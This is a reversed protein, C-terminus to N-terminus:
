GDPSLEVLLADMEVLQGVACHVAQVLAARPAEVAMEMKMSEMLVLTQGAEVRDGPSVRVALVTGPMQSKIRNGAAMGAAAGSRRPGGARAVRYVRGQVWVDDGAVAFPVRRGEVKLVGQGDQFSLIEAGEPVPFEGGAHRFIM